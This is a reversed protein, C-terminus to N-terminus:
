IGDKTDEKPRPKVFELQEEGCYPCYYVSKKITTIGIIMAAECATCEYKSARIKM